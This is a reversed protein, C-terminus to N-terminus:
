FVHMFWICYVHARSLLFTDPKLQLGPLYNLGPLRLLHFELCNFHGLPDMRGWSSEILSESCVPEAHCVLWVCADATKVLLYYYHNCNPLSLSYIPFPPAISFNIHRDLHLSAVQRSADDTSVFLFLCKYYFPPIELACM